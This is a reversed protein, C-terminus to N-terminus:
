RSAEGSIEVSTRGLRASDKMLVYAMLSHPPPHKANILEDAFEDVFFNVSINMADTWTSNQGYRMTGLALAELALAEHANSPGHCNIQAALNDLGLRVAEGVRQARPLGAAELALEYEILGILMVSHYQIRANHPDVWRGNPLQGPIVGLEAFERAGHLFREQGTARYLRSLLLVAFSNYNWNTSLPQTLAWDGALIASALYKQEGTLWYLYVLDAGIVGNDFQLAGNATPDVTIYNGEVVNAGARQAKDAWEVAQRALRSKSRPAYPFGFVGGSSQQSVLFDYVERAESLHQDRNQGRDSLLLKARGYRQSVRLRPLSQRAVHQEHMVPLFPRESSIADQVRSWAQLVKSSDPDSQDRSDHYDPRTEPVGAADGLGSALKTVIENVADLDTESYARRLSQETVGVLRKVRDSPPGPWSAASLPQASSECWAPAANSFRDVIPDSAGNPASVCAASLLCVALSSFKSFM